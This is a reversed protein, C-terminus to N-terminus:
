VYIVQKLIEDRYYSKLYKERALDIKLGFRAELLARLKQKTKYIDSKEEIFEIILDLDSDEDANDTAYSGFLGIKQVDFKEQLEAKLNKLEEIIDTRTKM